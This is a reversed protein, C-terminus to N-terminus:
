YRYKEEKNKDKHVHSGSGRLVPLHPAGGPWGAVHEPRGASMYYHMEVFLPGNEHPEIKAVCQRGEGGQETATYLAGFGGSGVTGGLRWQRKALDTLITGAPQPAAMRYGAATKKKPPM